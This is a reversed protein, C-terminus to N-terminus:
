EETKEAESFLDQQVAETVQGQEQLGAITKRLQETGESGRVEPLPPLEQLTHIGM